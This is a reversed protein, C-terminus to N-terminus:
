RFSKKKQPQPCYTGDYVSFVDVTQYCAEGTMLLEHIKGFEQDLEECRKKYEELPIVKNKTQDQLVREKEREYKRKLSILTTVLNQKFVRNNLWFNRIKGNNEYALIDKM